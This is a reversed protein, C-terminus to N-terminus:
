TTSRKRRQGEKSSDGLVALPEYFIKENEATFIRHSKKEKRLLLNIRSNYKGSFTEAIHIFTTRSNNAKM